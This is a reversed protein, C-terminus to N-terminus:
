KNINAFVFLMETGIQDFREQYKESEVSTDDYAKPDDYRIPFRAEAGLVVPCNADADSCTMIAAFSSQPNYGDSYVKSFCELPKGDPDFFIQYLPNNFQDIKDVKFGSQQVTKVARPNFATAETGGSFCNVQTIGFYAAATQAWIQGMHSRRSNHTCIFILNVHESAEMKKTIYHSFELLLKKREEPIQDFDSSLKKIRTEIKDIM